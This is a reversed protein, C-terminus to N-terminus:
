PARITFFRRPETAIIGNTLTVKGLGGFTGSRNTRWNAPVTLNTTTLLTWGGGPAGNTVSFILNTGSHTVGSIVPPVLTTFALDAGANTGVSNTAVIRFHYLTSPLLGGIANSLSVSTTGALLNSVGTVGGYSFASVSFLQFRLKVSRGGPHSIGM